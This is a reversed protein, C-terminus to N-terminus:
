TLLQGIFSLLGAAAMAAAIPGLLRPRYHLILVVCAAAAGILGIWEVLAFRWNPALLAGALSLILLTWGGARLWRPRVTLEAQRAHRDMSLANLAMGALALPLAALASM